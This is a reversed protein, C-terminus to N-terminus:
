SEIEGVSGPLALAGARWAEVVAQAQAKSQKVMVYPEGPNGLMVGPPLEGTEEFTETFVKLIQDRDSDRVSEVTVIAGPRFERVWDTFAREDVVELKAAKGASISITAGERGDPLVAGTAGMRGGLEDMLAQKERREEATLVDKVAKISALATMSERISM